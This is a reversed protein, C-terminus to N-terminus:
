KGGNTIRSDAGFIRNFRDNKYVKTAMWNDIFLLCFSLIIFGFIVLPGLISFVTFGYSASHFSDNDKLTNTALGVQMATLIVAIFVTTSLLWTFNDQFFTKYQNWLTMYGRLFSAQTLRYIKNLRSLRLEGYIFRQDINRYIEDTCLLQLQRNADVSLFQQADNIPLQQQMNGTCLLEQVFDRWKSWKVEKPLLDNEKGILFDSEHALLAAYSFLFGLACKWLKRRKCEQSNGHSNGQRTSCACNEQCALCKTWFEPELLFRPIPKLFIRGTTWVLHMDMQETIFIDRSLLRQYHLARPPMPRGAVWLWKFVKDLRSLNLEEEICTMIHRNPSTVYDLKELKVRYSAPLLPLIQDDNSRPANTPQSNTQLSTNSDVELLRVTFPPPTTKLQPTPQPVASSAIASKPHRQGELDGM